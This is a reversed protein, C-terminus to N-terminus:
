LYFPNVKYHHMNQKGHPSGSILNLHDFARTGQSGNLGILGLQIYIISNLFVIKSNCFCPKKERWALICM